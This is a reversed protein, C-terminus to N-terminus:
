IVSLTKWNKDTMVVVDIAGWRLHTYRNDFSRWYGDEWDSDEHSIKGDESLIINGFM